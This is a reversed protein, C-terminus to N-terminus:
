KPPEPLPMWHTVDYSYEEDIWSGVDAIRNSELWRVVVCTQRNNDAYVRDLLCLIWTGDRPATEIPQWNVAYM